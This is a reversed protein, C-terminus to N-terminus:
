VAQGASRWSPPPAFVSASMRFTLHLRAHAQCRLVVDWQHYRPFVIEPRARTAAPAAPAPAEVHVFRQILELWRDRDWVERWVYATPHDDPAGPNGAGGPQGPGGSGQNFPLFVTGPGDLRTTMYALEADLAFHVFARRALLVNRPDRDTRYQAIADAVRQGTWRNKLEATATPVGNVFLVLDLADAQDPAYRVQRVVRLRNAEYRAATDADISHAPRLQCLSFAVGRESIGERLVKVTGRRDLQGALRKLLDARAAREGGSLKALREWARPQTAAVFAIVDDPYLALERDYGRPDGAEWGGGGTMEAVILEEFARETRPIAPSSV